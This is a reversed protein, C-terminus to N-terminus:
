GRSFDQNRFFLSYAFCGAKGAQRSGFQKSRAFRSAKSVARLWRQATRLVPILNARPAFEFRLLIM